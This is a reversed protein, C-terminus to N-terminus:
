DRVLARVADGTMEVTLDTTFFARNRRMKDEPWNWWAIELLADIVADSFRKRREKAPVGVCIAFPEVDKTVVAGSGIVAGHGISVGPNITVNDGLWCASGVTVDAPEDIGNFGVLRAVGVQMNAYQLAHNSTIITLGEAIACYSGIRAVGGGKIVPRGLIGTHDGIVTGDTIRSSDIITITPDYGLQWDSIRARLPKFHHLRERLNM